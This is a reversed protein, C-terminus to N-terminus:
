AIRDVVCMDNKRKYLNISNYLQNVRKMRLKAYQRSKRAFSYLCTCFTNMGTWEMCVYLYRHPLLYFCRRMLLSCLFWWLSVRRESTIVFVFIFLVIALSVCWSSYNSTNLKVNFQEYCWVCKHLILQLQLTAAVPFISYQLINFTTHLRLDESLCQLSPLLEYSSWVRDVGVVAVGVITYLDCNCTCENLQKTGIIAISLHMHMPAIFHLAIIHVFKSYRFHLAQVTNYQEACWLVAISCTITNSWKTEGDGEFQIKNTLSNFVAAIKHMYTFIQM